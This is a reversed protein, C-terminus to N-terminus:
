IGYSWTILPILILVGVQVVENIAGYTDGTLGGLRKNLYSAMVIAALLAAATVALGDLGLLSISAALTIATAVVLWPLTNGQHFVSGLGQERAYPHAFVAYVMTWRAIAPMLILAEMRYEDPVVTLAVYQLLILCCGGVVGFGGVRSDRMIKLREESSRGGALGDCTDIFGDIHLARTIIALAIILLINTLSAPFALAFLRDLGYLFGGIMLGVLPFYALSRRLAPTSVNARLPVITLFQLAAVFGM